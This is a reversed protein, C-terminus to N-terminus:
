NYINMLPIEGRSKNYPIKYTKPMLEKQIIKIGLNELKKEREFMKIAENIENM